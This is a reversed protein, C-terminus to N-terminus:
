FQFLHYKFASIAMQYYYNIEILKIKAEILNQERTNVLFMSSEGINFLTLESQLLQNYLDVSQSQLEVQENLSNVTNYSSLIKYRINEKKSAMKANKDELKIRTLEVEAREKRTFISYSMSAGWYYNETSYDGVVGNGQDSSLANYKLKLDPKLGERKLRYDITAISIDNELMLFEPHNQLIQEFDVIPTIKRFDSIIQPFTTSDLELPIFGDQWLFTNLYTTKNQYDLVAEKLKLQRNMLQISLKVTDIAPKDGFKVSELVNNFRIKINKLNEKALDVKKFSKYWEFYTVSADLVLKNMMVKQVLVSSNQILRAQKLDARRQDIILGDGLNISIGLNWIGSPLLYSEPNLQYGENNNYGLETEIGFWTPVKVGGHVYSYYKKDDFYKQRIGGDLKPDFGGKAKQVYSDGERLKLNAQYAVPHHDKVIDIYESLSLSIVLSDQGYVNFFVVFFLVIFYIKKM